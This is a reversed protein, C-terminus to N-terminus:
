GGQHRDTGGLQAQLQRVLEAEVDRKEALLRELMSTSLTRLARDEAAHKAELLIVGEPTTAVVDPRGYAREVHEDATAELVFASWLVRFTRRQRETLSDYEAAFQMAEISLADDWLLADASVGYLKALQKLYSLDPQNSGVEWSSITAKVLSLKDAVQQQTLGAANRAAKLRQGIAKKDGDNRM